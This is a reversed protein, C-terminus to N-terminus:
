ESLFDIGLKDANSPTSLFIADGEELGKEIVAQDENTIGIIVEQKSTNFISEKYVFTLSDNSHICELPVYLVDDLVKTIIINSTTMAPRMLTDPKTVEIKVEFVKADSNQLQEGVNAVSIVKGEYKVNPFADVGIEVKQGAKVKSIDVENIYSNSIMESLDPLTAVEPQWPSISSGVKKKSGDWERAYILMGDKPAKIKFKEYLEEMFSLKDQQQLLTVFVESTKAKALATKIEYNKIAERYARKAKNLSIKAKRITAPPEFKSQELAIESEELAFNLNVLEDRSGRMDLATDLKTQVYQVELKKLESKLESIKSTLESRDLTAIYDGEKVITGEPILDIINVNWIGASRIGSPGTIDESNKAQLEGTTIVNVKFQGKKVEIRIDEGDEDVSDGFSWLLIITIVIVVISYIAKKSLEM